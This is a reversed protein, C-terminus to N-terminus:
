RECVVGDGDRDNYWAYEPDVGAVYPGYGAAIAHTCYRFRPDTSANAEDDGSAPVLVTDDDPSEYENSLDTSTSKSVSSQTQPSVSPSTSVFQSSSTTDIPAVTELDNIFSVGPNNFVEVIDDEFQVALALIGFLLALWFGARRLLTKSPSITKSFSKTAIPQQTSGVSNHRLATLSPPANLVPTAETLVPIKKEPNPSATPLLALGLCVLVTLVPALFFIFGLTALTGLGIFWFFFRSVTQGSRLQFWSNFVPSFPKTDSLRRFLLAAIPIVLFQAVGQLLASSWQTLAPFLNGVWWSVSQLLLYLFAFAIFSYIFTRRQTGPRLDNFRLFENAALRFFESIKEEM